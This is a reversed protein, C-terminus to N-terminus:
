ILGGIYTKKGVFSAYFRDGFRQSLDLSSDSAPSIHCKLNTSPLLLLTAGFEQLWIQYNSPVPISIQKVGKTEDIGVADANKRQVHHSLM